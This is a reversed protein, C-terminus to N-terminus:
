ERNPGHPTQLKEVHPEATQGRESISMRLFFIISFLSTDSMENWQNWKSTADRQSKIFKLKGSLNLDSHLPFDNNQLDQVGGSSPSYPSVVDCLSHPPPPLPTATERHIIGPRTTHCLKQVTQWCRRPVVVLVLLLSHRTRPWLNLGTWNLLRVFM